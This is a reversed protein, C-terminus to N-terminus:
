HCFVRRLFRKLREFFGERKRSVKQDLPKAPLNPWREAIAEKSYGYEELNQVFQILNSEVQPKKKLVAQRIGENRETQLTSDCFELDEIISQYEMYAADVRELLIREITKGFSTDRIQDGDNTAQAFDFYKRISHLLCQDLAKLASSQTNTFKLIRAGEAIFEQWHENKLQQFRAEAQIKQKETYQMLDWMTTLITINEASGSGTLEKFMDFVKGKNGAVRTDSIRDLFLIHNIVDIKNARMWGQIQQVVTMESLNPDAFGPTDILLIPHGGHLNVNVLKYATLDQTVSELSDGSITNKLPKSSFSEIFKSKGVGTMGMVLINYSNAPIDKIPQVSISGKNTPVIIWDYKPKSESVM